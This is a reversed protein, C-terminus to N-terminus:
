EAIKGHLEATIQDTRDNELKELCESLCFKNVFEALVDYKRVLLACEQVCRLNEDTSEKMKLVFPVCRDQFTDFLPLFAYRDACELLSSMEAWGVSDLVDNIPKYSFISLDFVRDLPEFRDDKLEITTQVNEKYGGYFINYFYPSFLSAVQ